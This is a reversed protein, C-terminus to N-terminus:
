LCTVHAASFWFFAQISILPGFCHPLKSTFEGSSLRFVRLLAAASVWLGAPPESGVFGTVESGREVTSKKERRKQKRRKFPASQAEAKLRALWYKM